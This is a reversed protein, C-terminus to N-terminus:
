PRASRWRDRRSLFPHFDAGMGDDVLEGVLQELRHGAQELGGEQIDVSASGLHTLGELDRLHTGNGAAMDDLADNRTAGFGTQQSVVDDNVFSSDLRQAPNLSSAASTRLPKSQPM